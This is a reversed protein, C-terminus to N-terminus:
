KVTRYISIVKGARITETKLDNWLMIDQIKCNYKKAIKGLYDGKKITYRIKEIDSFLPYTQGEALEMSAVRKYISDENIIFFGVKYNPLIIPFKEGDLSPILKTRYTPNLKKLLGTDIELITALHEINIAKKLFVSDIEHTNMEYNPDPSIGYETAFNMVYIAAILSPIYNKTQNPLFPRILWFNLKGGSRRIGKTINGRGANYSAIALEWNNFVQYAKKLYECAAQSSKYVDKREDLYNNIRLGYEKGTAYMFQWLGVAGAYSRANPNLSSEIIPIYKLEHPLQNKDLYEEFIPFYYTSLALLKSVQERRQFLYYQIHQKVNQNYVLELPTFENLSDLRRKTIEENLEMRQIHKAALPTPKEVLTDYKLLTDPKFSPLMLETQASVTFCIFLLALYIKNM